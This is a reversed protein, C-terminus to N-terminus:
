RQYVGRFGKQFSAEELGGSPAGPDETLEDIRYDDIGEIKRHRHPLSM